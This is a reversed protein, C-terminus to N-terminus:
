TTTVNVSPSAMTSCQPLYTSDVYVFDNINSSMTLSTVQTYAQLLMKDVM